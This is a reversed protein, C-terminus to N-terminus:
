RASDAENLKDLEEKKLNTNEDEILKTASALLSKNNVDEDLGNDNEEENAKFRKKANFGFKKKNKKNESTKNTIIVLNEVVSESDNLKSNTINNNSSSINAVEKQIHILEQKVLNLDHQHNHVNATTTTTTTPSILTNAVFSNNSSSKSSNNSTSSPNRQRKIQQTVIMNTFKSPLKHSRTENDTCYIHSLSDVLNDLRDGRTRQKGNPDEGNTDM